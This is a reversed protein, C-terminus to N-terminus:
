IWRRVKDQYHQYEEGFLKHLAEEEPIIQYKSIFGVYLPLVIISALNQLNMGISFLILLLGFYM